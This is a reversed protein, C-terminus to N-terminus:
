GNIAANVNNCTIVNRCSIFFWHTLAIDNLMELKGIIIIQLRALVPIEMM